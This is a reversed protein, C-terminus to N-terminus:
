RKDEKERHYDLFAKDLARVFFFLDEQQEDDFNFVRAYDLIVSWPIPSPGMGMQRCTSLDMFAGYYLEMGLALTPADAIREPVKM